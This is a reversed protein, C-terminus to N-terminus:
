NKRLTFCVQQAFLNPMLDRLLPIGSAAEESCITFGLHRVWGRFDSVSWFRVHEAPHCVWQSPFRGAFMLCLRNLLYAINPASIVIADSCEAASTMLREAEVCHEVVETLVAFDFRGYENGLPEAAVDRVIATVGKQRSLSVARESIDIAVVDCRKRSGLYHAFDGSGCGIELVRSRDPIHGALLMHRRKLHAKGELLRWYSDYDLCEDKYEPRRVYEMGPLLRTTLRRALGVQM